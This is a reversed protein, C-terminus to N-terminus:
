WISSRYGELMKSSIPLANLFLETDIILHFKRGRALRVFVSQCQWSLSHFQGTNGLLAGHSLQNSRRDLLCSTMPEFGM